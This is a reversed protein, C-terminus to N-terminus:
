SDGVSIIARGQCINWSFCKEKICENQPCGTEVWNCAECYFPGVQQSYPGFGIDVWEAHAVESCRECKMTPEKSFDSMNM